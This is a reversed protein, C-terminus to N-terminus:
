RGTIQLSDSTYEHFEIRNGDPDTLWFQWTNDCGFSVETDPQLGNAIVADRVANINKIEFCLHQYGYYANIDIPQSKEIGGTYFLELFQRPAIEIFDIWPQDGKERLERILSEEGQEREMHDALDHFTLRGAHKLGLGRTYFDLMNCEDKVQYAIQTINGAITADPHKVFKEVPIRGNEPYQTFQIENGEPDFIKIEKSGDVTIHIDEELKVGAKVLHERIEEIDEVEYNMKQYGYHDWRNELFNKGDNFGEVDYFLEVFQGDALKLYEIWPADGLERIKDLWPDAGAPLAKKAEDMSDYYNQFTLTFYRKMGLIDEYFHLMEEMNKTHIGVHALKEVSIKKLPMPEPRVCTSAIDTFKGTEEGALMAALVEHVHYAMEMSPRCNGGDRIVRALDSPGIGRLNNGVPGFNWLTVPEGQKWFETPQPILQIKGGFMNPDSLVLIGKTGYVYFYAQDTFVSDANIHFTGTVGSEMQVVASVESENPTDMVQGYLPNGPMTNVHTLYPKRIISGVRNVPGLLSVLATMYYVGYDCVLGGGPQRLFAFASLLKDNNRNGAIVFSNIEGLLGEDIAARARQLAAGMFTDPASGLYLGKEEALAVLEASKELDDTMIKETYVHKGHELASKIIDYHAYAPTLNVIMEIEPDDLMEEMTTAILGYKEAKKQASEIHGACISKVYLNQYKTTMNTLYIDSIAGAGVVGTCVRKEM